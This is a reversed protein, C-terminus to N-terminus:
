APVRERPEDDVLIAGSRRAMLYNWGWDVLVKLRNRFGILYAIHVALWLVWAIPGGFNPGIPLEVVANGRGLVAMIGKDRYKFPVTKKGEILRAIQKGVHTGGQIAAPALQPVPNDKIFAVDGCAFVGPRGDVQLDRGVVVAGGRGTELGIQGGIPSAKVGAAWIITRSEIRTGDKLTVSEADASAVIAELRVDVGRRRLDKLARESSRESFNALLRPSAEVLVVHMDKADEGLLNSAMSALAGATEVGTPGGGVVVVTSSHEGEHDHDLVSAELEALLHRRLRVADGLTYLPWSSEELGPIGFFNATAGAAVVLYDFSLRFEDSFVVKRDDWDVDVVEGVHVNVNRQSRFIPRLAAGVEEASLSATGVQYLLPQFTHHNNRDVIWIDVDVDRLAHATNLGAFGGGLIVVKPRSSSANAVSSM